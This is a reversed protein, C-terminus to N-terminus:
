GFSSDTGAVWQGMRSHRRGDATRWWPEPATPGPPPRDPLIDAANRGASHLLVCHLRGAQLGSGTDPLNWESAGLRSEPILCCIVFTNMLGVTLVIYALDIM